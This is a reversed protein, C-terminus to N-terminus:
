MALRFGHYYNRLWFADSNRSSIRCRKPNTGWSGGRNICYGDDGHRGIPNYQHFASYEEYGDECWEFLNGSMDYIGLENPKKTGVKHTRFSEDPFQLQGKDDPDNWAVDDVNNSGSYKFGKSKNGGRAAYEWEAETPLRFKKGTKANLRKIFLKCDGWSVNEVPLDDGKFESPKNGMVAKWEKQTVEYRGIHFSKLTVEHVPKEDEKVDEGQENTAGMLFSGGNVCVMNKIINNIVQSTTSNTAENSNQYNSPVILSSRKEDKSLLADYDDYIRGEFIYKESVGSGSLKVYIGLRENEYKEWSCATTKNESIKIETKVIPHGNVTMSMLGEALGESELLSSIKWPYHFREEKMGGGNDVYYYYVEYYKKVMRATYDENILLQYSENLNKDLILYEGTINENQSIDTNNTVEDEGDSPIESYDPMPNPKNSPIINGAVMIVLLITVVVGVIALIRKDSHKDNDQHNDNNDSVTLRAGCYPCYASNDPVRKGCLHCRREVQNDKVNETKADDKPISEERDFPFGCNPCSQQNGNVLAGCGPCKKM